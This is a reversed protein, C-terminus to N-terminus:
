NTRVNTIEVPIKAINEISTAAAAPEGERIAGFDFQDPTAKLIEGGSFSFVFSLGLLFVGLLSSGAMMKTGNKM